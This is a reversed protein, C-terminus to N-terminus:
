NEPIFPSQEHKDQDLRSMDVDQKWTQKIQQATQNM